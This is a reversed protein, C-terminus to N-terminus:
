HLCFYYKQELQTELHQVKEELAATLGSNEDLSAQLEAVKQSYRAAKDELKERDQKLQLTSELAGSLQKRLLVVESTVPVNINM